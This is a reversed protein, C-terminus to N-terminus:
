GGTNTLFALEKDMTKMTAELYKPINKLFLESAMLFFSAAGWVDGMTAQKMLEARKAHNAGDYKKVGFWRRERSLTAMILHLSQIVEYENTMNYSMLELLQGATLEDTYLNLRYRTGAVRINREFKLPPLAKLESEIQRVESNLATMSVKKAEDLSIGKVVAYIAVKRTAEDATMEIAAIRQFQDITLTTFKM